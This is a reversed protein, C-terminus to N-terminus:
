SSKFSAILQTWKSLSEYGVKKLKENQEQMNKIVTAQSSVLRKLPATSINCIDNGFSILNNKFICADDPFQSLFQSIVQPILIQIFGASGFNNKQFTSINNLIIEIITFLFNFTNVLRIEPNSSKTDNFGALIATMINITNTTEPLNMRNSTKNFDNFLFELFSQRDSLVLVKPFIISINTSDQVSDIIFFSFLVTIVSVWANAINNWDGLTKPNLQASVVSAVAQQTVAQQTEAQQTVAQQTVADLIGNDGFGENTLNGFSETKLINNYVLKEIIKSTNIQMKIFGYKNLYDRYKDLNQSTISDLTNNVFNIGSQSMSSFNNFENTIKTKIISTVQNDKIVGKLGIYVKVSM